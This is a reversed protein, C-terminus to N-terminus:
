NPNHMLNVAKHMPNKTVDTLVAKVTRVSELEAWTIALDIETDEDYALLREKLEGVTLGKV